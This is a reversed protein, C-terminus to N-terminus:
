LLNLAKLDAIPEEFSCSGFSIAFNARASAIVAKPLQAQAPERLGDDRFAFPSVINLFKAYFAADERGRSTPFPGRMVAGPRIDFDDNCTITKDNAWTLASTVFVNLFGHMTGTPANAEYTLPKVCRIPHHLGATAKFPLERRACELLFKAVAESPPFAEATVGGTRIKARGNARKIADLLEPLQATLPTEYYTTTATGILRHAKEVDEASEVKTEVCDVVALKSCRLAFADLAAVDDEFKPGLLLSLRWSQPENEPLAQEFECLRGAPLVFRGLMWAYEGRLYRSYNAVASKMDLAAPPFLGAYDILDTLLVRLSAAPKTV